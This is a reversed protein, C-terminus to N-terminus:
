PMDRPFKHTIALNQRHYATEDKARFKDKLKFSTVHHMESACFVFSLKFFFFAFYM